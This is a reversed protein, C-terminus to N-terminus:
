PYETAATSRVLGARCGSDAHFPRRMRMLAGWYDSLYDVNIPAVAILGDLGERDMVEYARAKNLLM